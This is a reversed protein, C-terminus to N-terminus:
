AGHHASAAPPSVRGQVASTAASPDRGSGAEVTLDLIAWSQGGNRKSRYMLRDAQRLMTAVAPPRAWTVAGASAALCDPDRLIERYLRRLVQQVGAGDTSPLLLGFEDGGLRGAVDVIRRSQDLHRAFHAIVVDGHAHGRSDNATKLGDLDFYVISLATGNRVARERERAAADLFGARNLLGTGADTRSRHALEVAALVSWSAIIALALLGAARILADLVVEGTSAGVDRDAVVGAVIALAICTLTTVRAGIAVALVVIPAWLLAIAPAPPWRELTAVVVALGHLTVVAAKPAPARHEALWEAARVPVESSRTGAGGGTCWDFASTWDVAM